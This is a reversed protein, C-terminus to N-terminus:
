GILLHIKKGEQLQLKEDVIMNLAETLLAEDSSDEGLNQPRQRLLSAREEVSSLTIIESNVKAAVKDFVQAQASLPVFVLLLLLVLAFSVKNLKQLYIM